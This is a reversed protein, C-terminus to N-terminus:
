RARMRLRHELVKFDQRLEARRLLHALRQVLCDLLLSAREGVVVELAEEALECDELEALPLVLPAERRVLLAVDGKEAVDAGVVGVGEKGVDGGDAPEGGGRRGGGRLALGRGRGVAAARLRRLVLRELCFGEKRVRGWQARWRGEEQAAEVTNGSLRTFLARRAGGVEM